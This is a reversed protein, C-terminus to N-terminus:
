PRSRLIAAIEGAKAPSFECLRVERLASEGQLFRTVAGAIVEIAPALPYGFIGTSIAPLSIRELGLEAALSLASRVASTLLEAEGRGGGRWVPGVAHIVARFPLTGASTHVATGTKVPALRDSERQIQPGGARSILGAVGGGHALNENAANVIAEVPEAVISNEVLRFWKGNIEKEWLVTM